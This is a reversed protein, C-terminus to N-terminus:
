QNLQALFIMEFFSATSATLIPTKNNYWKSHGSVKMGGKKIKTINKNKTVKNEIYTHKTKFIRNIKNFKILIRRYKLM